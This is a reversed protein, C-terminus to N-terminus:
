NDIQDLKIAVQGDLESGMILMGSRVVLDDIAVVQLEAQVNVDGFASSALAENVQTVGEALVGSYDYRILKALRDRVIPLDLVDILTDALASTTDSDLRVDKAYITKTEAAVGLRVTMKTHGELDFWDFIDIIKLWDSRNDYVVDAEIHLRGDEHMKIRMAVFSLQGQIVGEVIEFVLSDRPVADLVKQLEQEEIVVPLSLKFHGESTAIRELPPLPISKITPSEGMVVHTKGRIAIQTTLTQGHGYLGSFGVSKPLFVAYVTPKDFIQVPMQADDWINELKQRLNLDELMAPVQKEFEVLKRRVLPEVRSGITIKVIDFLWIEPRRDWLFDSKLALTPRWDAGIDLAANVFFTVDAKATEQIGLVKATATAHVPLSLKLSQGTANLSLDGRRDVHGRIDCYIDPTVKTKLWKGFLMKTKLWKAKVCRVNRENITALRSPLNANAERQVLALDITIPVSIESEKPMLAVDRAAVGPITLFVTGLLALAITPEANSVKM